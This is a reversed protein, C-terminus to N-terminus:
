PKEPLRIMNGLSELGSGKSKFELTPPEDGFGLRKKNLLSVALERWQAMLTGRNDNTLSTCTEEWGGQLKVVAWGLEGIYEQADKTRYPGIRSIASLIRSVGDRAKQDDPLQIIARLKAPLPFRDNKPDQRYLEVARLLEPFPIDSLDQIYMEMQNDTLTKEYYEALNIVVKAIERRM